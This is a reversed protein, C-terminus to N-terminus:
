LRRLSRRSVLRFRGALFGAAFHVGVFMGAMLGPANYGAVFALYAALPLAFVWFSLIHFLVPIWVDGTGRLASMLVGQVGDFILAAAVIMILPAAVAIVVPDSSYIAALQGPLMLFLLGICAMAVVVLGVGTWGAAAVGPQDGRGVANGVRVTTATGIGVACMFALAILNQAIQYGGLAAAGLYGAMMILGSFASAEIGQAFGMPYGIRRLTRGVPWPARVGGRIGYAASSPMLYIYGILAAVTLWRVISTALIAGEAGLAPAGLNGYIFIWNLGANIVNAALMVVMAPRPRGTAELFMSTVVAILMAMMGWAFQNLVRGGGRAIDPDQGIALLFWGGALCLVGMILGLGIAHLLALRWIGGCAKADGAGDAQAVLVATGYLAGVGVMLLMVQVANAISVFALEMQGAQGTMAVDVSVMILISARSIVVPWALTLTLNIHQSITRAPAPRVSAQDIM